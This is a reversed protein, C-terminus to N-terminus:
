SFNWIINQLENKDTISNIQTEMDNAYKRVSLIYSLMLDKDSQTYGSLNSINIQKHIPYKKLIELSSKANIEALLRNKSCFLESVIIASDLQEQTPPLKSKDLMEIEYGNDASRIVFEDDKYGLQLMAYYISM